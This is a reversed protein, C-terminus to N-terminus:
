CWRCSSPDRPRAGSRRWRVVVDRTEGTPDILRRRRDPSRPRVAGRDSRRHRSSGALARDVVLELEPRQGQEVPRRRGRGAGARGPRRRPPWGELVELGSPSHIPNSTPTSATPPYRDPRQDAPHRRPDGPSRRRHREARSPIVARLDDGRRRDPGPRRRHHTYAVESPARRGVAELVKRRTYALELGAPDRSCTLESRDEVPFVRQRDRPRRM